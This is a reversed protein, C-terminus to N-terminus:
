TRGSALAKSKEVETERGARELPLREDWARVM